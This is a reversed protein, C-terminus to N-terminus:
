VNQIEKELVVEWKAGKFYASSGAPYIAKVTGVYNIPLRKQTGTEKCYTVRVGKQNITEGLRPKREMLIKM